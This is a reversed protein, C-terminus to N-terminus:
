DSVVNGRLYFVQFPPESNMEVVISKEKIGISNPRYIIKVEANQGKQISKETFSVATCGCSAGVKSIKLPNKSINKIRFTFSLSDNISLDKFLYQTNEIEFKAFEKVNNNCSILCFFLVFTKIKM